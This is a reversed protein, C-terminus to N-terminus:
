RFPLPSPAPYARACDVIRVRTRAIRAISREAILDYRDAVHPQGTARRAHAASAAFDALDRDRTMGEIRDARARECGAVQADRLEMRGQYSQAFVLASLVLVAAFAALPGRSM